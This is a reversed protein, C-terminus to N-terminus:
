NKSVIRWFFSCLCLFNRFQKYLYFYVCKCPNVVVIAFLHISKCNVIVKEVFSECITLLYAVVIKEQFRPSSPLYMQAPESSPMIKKQSRSVVSMMCATTPSVDMTFQTCGCALAQKTADLPMSEATFSHDGSLSTGM